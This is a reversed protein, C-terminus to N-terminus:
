HVKELLYVNPVPQVCAHLFNRFSHTDIRLKM